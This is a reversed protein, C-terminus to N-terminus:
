RCVCGRSPRSVQKHLKANAKQYAAARDAAEDAAAADALLLRRVLSVLQLLHGADLPAGVDGAPAPPM